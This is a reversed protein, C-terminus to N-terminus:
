ARGHSKREIRDIYCQAKTAYTPYNNKINQLAKLDKNKYMTLLEDHIRNLKKNKM